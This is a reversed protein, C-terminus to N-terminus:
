DSDSAIDMISFPLGLPSAPPLFADSSVEPSEFLADALPAAFPWPGPSLPSDSRREADMEGGATGVHGERWSALSCRREMASLLANAVDKPTEDLGETGFARQRDGEASTGGDLDEVDPLHEVDIGCRGIGLPPQRCADHQLEEIGLIGGVARTSAGLPTEGARGILKDAGGLNSRAHMIAGVRPKRPTSPTATRSKKHRLRPPSVGQRTLDGPMDEFVKFSTAPQAAPQDVVDEFVRFSKSPRVCTQADPRSHKYPAGSAFVGPTGMASGGGPMCIGGQGLGGLGTFNSVDFLGRGRDRQLGLTAAGIGGCTTTDM